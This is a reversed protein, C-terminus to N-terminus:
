STSVNPIRPGHFVQEPTVWGLAPRWRDRLHFVCLFVLSPRQRVYATYRVAFDGTNEYRCLSFCWLNIWSKLCHYWSISVSVVGLELWFTKDWNPFLLIRKSSKTPKIATQMGFQSTVIINLRPEEKVFCLSQSSLKGSSTGMFPIVHSILVKCFLVTYNCCLYLSVYVAGAGLPEWSFMWKLDNFYHPM